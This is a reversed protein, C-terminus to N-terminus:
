FFNRLNEYNLLNNAAESYAAHSSGDVEGAHANNSLLSHQTGGIRAGCDACKGVQMAGGCEGIAYIHGNPCKFWHGKAMGVANIVEQFEMKGIEAGLKKLHQFKEDLKKELDDTFVEVSFLIEKCQKITHKLDLNIFTRFKYTDEFTVVQVLFSWRRIEKDFDSLEQKTLKKDDRLLMSFLFDLNETLIKPKLKAKKAATVINEIIQMKANCVSLQMASVPQRRGDKITSVVNEMKKLVADFMSGEMLARENKLLIIKNMVEARITDNEVETGFYKEKVMALDRLSKKIYDSYRETTTLITKCRPCCKPEIKGKDEQQGKLWMDMGNSELVHGCEKLLVFRADEEDEDGFFIETLEDRDCVRCLPPCPDGCLGVCPHGCRLKKRCPKNCPPVTCIDGCRATCATHICKRSCEEKCQTCPEGCIKGCSSHACKYSCKKACPQCEDRCSIPCPHGCVLIAGCKESCQKHIRGQACEGCTGACIHSCSLIESCPSDCFKLLKYSNGTHELFFYYSYRVWMFCDNGSRRMNCEIKFVHGCAAVQNHKILTKCSITCPENCQRQCVHLCPLLTSCKEFCDARTPLKRCEIKITHKCADIQKTVMVRCDGCQENCKKKCAHGCPLLRKCNEICVGDNPNKNCPTRVTHTCTRRKDVVIECTMCKEFCKNPCKHNGTSCDLRLRGCPKQCLYELHDPDDRFHCMKTCAHGCPEVRIECSFPCKHSDVSSYCPKHPDTHGCPLVAKVQMKCIFTKVDVHCPLKHKHGCPLIKDVIVTCPQCTQYCRNPCPHNNECLVKTCKALCKLDKHPRDLVHCVRTCLHGCVLQTKCMQNCGGEVVDNFDQPLRVPTKRNVHIQCRLLLSPGISGQSVLVNKVKRWIEGEVCLTNMDGMIYFGERVRSLAVCVRNEIKLFGIKGNKNSRVLSLLIIKSEDGQYNDLVTIRVGELLNICKRQEKFLTFMQGSYAALITIDEPKYGNQILYRALAILFKAEHENLKSSDDAETEEFQHDIFYLNKVVGVISPFKHVSPHNELTPYIAPVILSAIEPRMRHQVNLTHCQLNNKVMREFLSIGLDYHKELEYNSTSPRLQQHDGIMILHKCSSTLSVVVHSELVEAAEQAAATTTMGVILMQKMVELDFIDKIENYQEQVAAYETQYKELSANLHDKYKDLWYLYLEWRDNASMTHPNQWDCHRPMNRKVNADSTTELKLQLYELQDELRFRKTQLDLRPNFLTTEEDDFSEEEMEIKDILEKLKTVSTLIHNENKRIRRNLGDDIEYKTKMQQYQMEDFQNYLDAEDNRNQIRRKGNLKRKIPSVKLLWEIMEEDSATSFWSSSFNEDTNLFSKLKIVVSNSEIDKLIDSYENIMHLWKYVQDEINRLATNDTRTRRYTKRKELLSFKALNENKSQGGVRVIDETSSILSELFQDLAHNTYCVVLIPSSTHWQEKNKILTNAIKTGLFTKGTGPPGQIVVLENTLAARFAELQSRNLETLNDIILNFYNLYELKKIAPDLEIIYKQMPFETEDKNQIAKLVHYYPEFYVSCEIMVYPQNLVCKKHDQEFGVVVQGKQLLELSREIVKAFLMSQFNDNSFCLLAGFMFRKNFNFKVPTNKTVRQFQLLVGQQNRTSIPNLFEVNQYVRVNSAKFKSDTSKMFLSIGVRLPGVFDEKLLRFQIDLYHHVNQYRKDILNKRLFGKESLVEDKTPYISLDRFNDPPEADDNDLQSQFDVRKKPKPIKCLELSEELKEYLDLMDATDFDTLSKLLVTCAKLTKPLVECARSPVCDILAQFVTAANKFFTEPEKWFYSSRIREIQSHLAFNIVSKTLSEQFNEKCALNMISIKNREMDVLCVTALTKVILVITDNTLESDLLREFGTQHATIELIIATPDKNSLEELIKFRYFTEKHYQKREEKKKNYQQNNPRERRTNNEPPKDSKHHVQTHHFNGRRRPEQDNQKRQESGSPLNDM